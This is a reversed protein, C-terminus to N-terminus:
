VLKQIIHYKPFVNTKPVINILSLLRNFHSSPFIENLTLM